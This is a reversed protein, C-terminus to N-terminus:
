KLEKEDWVFMTVGGQTVTGNGGCIDQSRAPVPFLAFVIYIDYERQKRYM